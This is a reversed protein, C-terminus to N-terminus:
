GIIHQFTNRFHQLQAALLRLHTRAVPRAMARCTTRKYCNQEFPLCTRLPSRWRLGESTAVMAGPAAAEVAGAASTEEGAVPLSVVPVEPLAPGQLLPAGTIETYSPESARAAMTLEGSFRLM